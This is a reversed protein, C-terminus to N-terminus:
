TCLIALLLFSFFFKKWLVSVLPIFLHISFFTYCMIICNIARLSRALLWTVFLMCSTLSSSFFLLLSVYYCSNTSKFIRKVASKKEAQRVYVNTHFIKHIVRIFSRVNGIFKNKTDKAAKRKKWGDWRVEEAYTSFFINFFILAHYLHARRGM